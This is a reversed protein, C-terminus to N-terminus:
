EPKRLIVLRLPLILQKASLPHGPNIMFWWIIYINITPELVHAIILYGDSHHVSFAGASSFRGHFLVVNAKNHEKPGRQSSLFGKIKKRFGWGSSLCVHLALLICLIEESFSLKWVSCNFSTKRTSLLM